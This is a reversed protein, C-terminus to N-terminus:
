PAAAEFDLLLQGADEQAQRQAAARTAAHHDADYALHCRQCMARLNAPDCNEPTHDLHAVTLIVQSGTVPHPDYQAAECRGAHRHGCEGSCECRWGARDERISLSIEPWNAPYLGRQSERIPM